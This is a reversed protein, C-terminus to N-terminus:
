QEKNDVAALAARIRDRLETDRMGSLGFSDNFSELEDDADALLKRLAEAEAKAASLEATLRDYVVRLKYGWDKRKQDAARESRLVDRVVYRPVTAPWAYDEHDPESTRIIEAALQILDSLPRTTEGSAPEAQQKSAEVPPPSTDGWVLPRARIGPTANLSPCEKGMYPETTGDSYILAWAVPEAAPAPPAADYMHRWAEVAEDGRQSSYGGEGGFSAAAERMEPTPERPKMAWDTM